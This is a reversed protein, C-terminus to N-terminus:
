GGDKDPRKNIETLKKDSVIPNDGISDIKNLRILKEMRKELEAWSTELFPYSADGVPDYAAGTKKFGFNKMLTDGEVSGGIACIVLKPNDTNALSSIMRKFHRAYLPLIHSLTCALGEIYICDVQEKEALSYIDFYTIKNEYITGGKLADYFDKKLPLLNINAWLDFDDKYIYFIHPNKDHWPKKIDFKNIPCPYIRRALTEIENIEKTSATRIIEKEDHHIIDHKNPRDARVYAYHLKYLMRNAMSLVTQCDDASLEGDEPMYKRASVLAGTDGGYKKAYEDWTKFGDKLINIESVMYDLMDTTFKFDTPRLLYTYIREAKSYAFSDRSDKKEEDSITIGPKPKPLPKSAYTTHAKDASKHRDYLFHAMKLNTPETGMRVFEYHLMRKLLLFLYPNVQIKKPM